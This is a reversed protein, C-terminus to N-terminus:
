LIQKTDVICAAKVHDTAIRQLLLRLGGKRCDLVRQLVVLRRGAAAALDRQEAFGGGALAVGGDHLAQQVAEAALLLHPACRQLSGRGM